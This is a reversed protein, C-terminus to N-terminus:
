FPDYVKPIIFMSRKMVYSIMNFWFQDIFMRCFRGIVVVCFIRTPGECPHLLVVFIVKDDDEMCHLKSLVEERLAQLVERM